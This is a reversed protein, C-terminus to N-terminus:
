KKRSEIDRIAKNAFKLALGICKMHSTSSWIFGNIFMNLSRQLSAASKKIKGGNSIISSKSVQLHNDNEAILKHSSFNKHISRQYNSIYKILHDSTSIYEIMKSSDVVNILPFYDYFDKATVDSSKSDKGYLTEELTEVRLDSSKERLKVTKFILEEINDSNHMSKSLLSECDFLLDIVEKNNRINDSYYVKFSMRLPKIKLSVLSNRIDSGYKNGNEKFWITYKKMDTSIFVHLRKLFTVMTIHIRDLIDILLNWFKTWKYNIESNVSELGIDKSWIYKESAALAISLVNVDNMNELVSTMSSSTDFDDSNQDLIMLEDETYTESELTYFPKNKFLLDTFGEISVDNTLFSM